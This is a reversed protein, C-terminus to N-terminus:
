ACQAAVSSKSAEPLDIIATTGQQPESYLSFQGGLNQVLLKCLPLGLGTGEYASAGTSQLQAYPELARRLDNETMGIGTDRVLISTGGNASSRIAITVRGGPLTFKVANSLLNLIAQKLRRRDALLIPLNAEAETELSVKGAAARISMLRVCEQAIELAQVEEFIMDMKGAEIKSLDLLDSILALLHVASGHIDNAYEPYKAVLVSASQSRMIDSFGIIANLPTRLEHITNALFRTKEENARTALMKDEVLNKMVSATIMAHDLLQRTAISLDGIENTRDDTCPVFNTEGAALRRIDNTLHALPRIYRRSFYVSIGVVVGIIGLMLIAYGVLYELSGQRADVAKERASALAADRVVVISTMTPVYVSTFQGMTTEFRGDSRAIAVLRNVLPLGQQIYSRQMATVADNLSPEESLHDAVFGLQEVLTNLKGYIREAALSESLTYPRSETIPASLTSGIRGAYERLDSSQRAIFLLPVISPNSRPINLELRNIILANQDTISFMRDVIRSIEGSQRAAKPTSALMDIEHRAADLIKKLHDLDVVTKNLESDPAGQLVAKLAAIADDTKARTEEIRSAYNAPVPPGAGLASNMPGREFALKESQSLAAAYTDISFLLRDSLVYTHWRDGVLMVAILAAAMVVAALILHLFTQIRM